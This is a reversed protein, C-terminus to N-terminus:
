LKFDSSRGNKLEEFGKKNSNILLLIFFITGQMYYSGGRIGYSIIGFIAAISISFNRKYKFMKITEKFLFMMSLLIGMIGFECLIRNLLSYGDTSNLGYFRYDNNPFYKYYVSEISGFGNGLIYNKSNLFAKFNSYLAFTSANANKLNDSNLFYRFDFTQTLKLYVMQDYLLIINLFLFLILLLIIKKIISVKSIMFKIFFYILLMFYSITTNSLIIGVLSFILRKTIKKDKFYDMEIIYIVAPLLLQAYMGPEGCISNISLLKTKFPYTKKLIFLLINKKTLIYIILQIYGISIIIQSIKIYLSMIKKLSLRNFLNNYSLYIILIIIGQQLGKYYNINNEFLVYINELLIILLIIIKKKSFKYSAKTVLIYFISILEQLRFGFTFMSFILLIDLM